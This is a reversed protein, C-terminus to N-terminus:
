VRSVKTVTSLLFGRVTSSIELLHKLNKEGKM